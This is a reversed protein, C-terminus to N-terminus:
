NREPRVAKPEIRRQVIYIKGDPQYFDCRNDDNVTNPNRVYDKENGKNDIAIQPPLKINCNGSRDGSRYFFKCSGCTNPEATNGVPLIIENAM